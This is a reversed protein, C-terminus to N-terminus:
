ALLKDVEPKIIGYTWQYGKDNPHIGDQYQYKEIWNVTMAKNFLPIFKIGLSHAVEGLISELEKIRENSFYVKSDKEPMVKDPNMPLMGICVTKDSLQKISSLFDTVNQKYEAPTSVFNDPRGIAKANNAGGQVLAIVKMKPKRMTRLCVKTRESMDEITAAPVGLSHVEHVQGIGDSGYQKQHIDTKLFDPWGGKTGGVGHLTSAGICIIQARM